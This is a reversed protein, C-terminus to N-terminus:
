AERPVVALERRATLRLVVLPTPLGIEAESLLRQLEDVDAVPHGGLGVIVDGPLVGGAAAPGDREVSLVKVGADAALHHHRALPRPVPVAQGGIGIVARRVRGDRILQAAVREAAHLPIAFCLGQGTLIAATNIGVAAGRHDVLPGGSNGPNLAADTQIVSDILRGGRARLSRGLASVVGATVTARFGYPSGLAIVLQGVRLARSDGRAIPRLGPAEIRLLAVDSGPDEGALRAPWVSGDALTVAIERAGGVVHQNTLVFGDPTLVFGSGGGERTRGRGGLRAGVHVVSPGAAESAGVVARSYADLLDREEAAPAPPGSM